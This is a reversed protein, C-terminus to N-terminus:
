SSIGEMLDGDSVLGYTRHDILGDGFVSRLHEEAIAFGVGTGFGQGLPGTTTEIGIEPEREPHGATPYGFQRFNRLADLPLPYGSLHLLSYLLMSGHGNSVVFRDRDPWTPDEPDVVLFDAWLMTALDAMGMPMGPHGSNAAQVADM